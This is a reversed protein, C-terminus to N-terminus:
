PVSFRRSALLLALAIDTDADSASHLDLVQDKWKWAFLKDSRVQLNQQTWSWVQQFIAPDDSWVARLLAYGQGESTTIGEEDLSVVHGDELYAYKYFGWLAYLEDVHQLYTNQSTPPPHYQCATLYLLSYVVTCLLFRNKMSP